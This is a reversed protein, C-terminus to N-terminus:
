RAPTALGVVEVEVRRDPALCHILRQGKLGKCADPTTVPDNKGRGIAQMRNAEVNRGVLYQKVSDARRQSLKQNYADSGIRDTYGVITIAGIQAAGMEAILKDLEAAGSPTLQARDFRFQTDAALRLKRPQPQAPPAPPAISPEPPIAPAVPPPAEAAETPPEPAPVPEAAAEPAMAEETAAIEKDYNSDASAEAQAEAAAAEENALPAPASPPEEKAVPEAPAARPPEVAKPAAAVESAPAAPPPAAPVAAKAAEAPTAVCGSLAAGAEPMTTRVCQGTVATRASGGFTDSVYDRQLSTPQEASAGALWGTDAVLAAALTAGALALGLKSKM